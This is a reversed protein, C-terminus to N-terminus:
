KAGLALMQLEEYDKKSEQELYTVAVLFEQPSLLLLVVIQKSVLAVSDTLLPVAIDLLSDAKVLLLTEPVGVCFEYPWHTTGPVPVKAFFFTKVKM